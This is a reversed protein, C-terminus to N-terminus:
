KGDSGKHLKRPSDKKGRPNEVICMGEGRDGGESQRGM